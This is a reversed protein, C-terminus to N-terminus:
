TQFLDPLERRAQVYCQNEIRECLEDGPELLRIVETQTTGLSNGEYYFGERREVIINLRLALAVLAESRSFGDAAHLLLYCTLPRGSSGQRSIECCIERDTPALRLAPRENVSFQLHLETAAHFFTSAPMWTWQEEGGSDEGPRQRMQNVGICLVGYQRGIGHLYNVLMRPESEGLGCEARDDWGSMSMSPSLASVSDIVVLGIAIQRTLSHLMGVLEAIDAPRLVILRDTDIGLHRAYVPSFGAEADVWIATDGLRQRHAVFQLLWTSKGTSPQGYLEVLSGNRFGEGGILLDM